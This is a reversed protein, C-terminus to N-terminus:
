GEEDEEGIGISQGSINKTCTETAKVVFLQVFRHTNDVHEGLQKQYRLKKKNECQATGESRAFSNSARWDTGIRVGIFNDGKELGIYTADVSRTLFDFL